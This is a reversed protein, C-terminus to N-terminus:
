GPRGAGPLGAEHCQTVFAAVASAELPHSILWGQVADCGRAALFDLQAQTEVGEAVVQLGMGRAMSMLAGVIAADDPVEPAHQVFSRDIKLEDVPFRRLYSLSAYGTGFDDISLRFGLRKLQQMRTVAQELDHLLVSETIEFRIMSPDIRSAATAEAISSMFDPLMLQRSSLNIAVTFPQPLEKRWAAAQQFASRLVWDGLPHILGTEEADPIFWEPLSLSGDPARWRLLAEVGTVRGSALAMAPQYFLQLTDDQLAQRIANEHELRAPSHRSMDAAYFGFRGKESAKIQYMATDASRLLTAPDAGDDPFMSIGISARLGLERDGVRLPREFAALMKRALMAAAERGPVGDVVVVFEDGGWRAVTDSARVISTLRSSVERLLSDGAEHGFSDNINKFDDVDIFMVCLLQRQRMAKSVLQELRDHLLFRNPIRTLADHTAQYQLEDNMALLETVDSLAIVHGTARGHMDHMATRKMRVARRGPGEGLFVIEGGDQMAPGPAFSVVRGEATRARLLEDLTRRTTPDFPEALMDRGVANAYVLAGAADTTFVGDAISQLTARAQEREASLARMSAQLERWSWLPYGLAVVALAAAPPYWRHALLSLAAAALLPAVYAAAIALPLRERRVRAYALMPLLVLLATLPLALWRPLPEVVANRHLSEFVTANFEVAPTPTARGSAPTPVTGALGSATVGVFVVRGALREPHQGTLVEHFSLREFRATQGLLPLLLRYDRQWLPADDAPSATSRAGRPVVATAPDFLSLTALGLQPHLRGHVGALLYVSRVLGDVEIEVDAHGLVAPRRLSELPLNIAVAGPEPSTEPFVPLVVKGHRRIARAFDEDGVPDALDPESFGISFAVVAAGADTLRDLLEAHTRRQWPWRGLAAISIDDAVVLVVEPAEPAPWLSLHLDFLLNDVRDLLSTSGLALALVVMVAALTTRRRRASM